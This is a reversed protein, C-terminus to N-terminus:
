GHILWRVYLKALECTDKRPKLLSRTAMGGGKIGDTSPPQGCGDVKQKM